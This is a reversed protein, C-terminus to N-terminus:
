FVIRLAEINYYVDDACIISLKKGNLLAGFREPQSLFMKVSLASKTRSKPLDRVQMIPRASLVDNIDCDLCLKVNVWFTFETWDGPRSKVSIDGGLKKCLEKCINLGLGSGNPNM